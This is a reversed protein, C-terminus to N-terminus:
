FFNAFQVTPAAYFSNISSFNELIRSVEFVENKEISQGKKNTKALCFSCGRLLNVSIFYYDESGLGGVGM